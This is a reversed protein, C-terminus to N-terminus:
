KGAGLAAIVDRLLGGDFGRHVVIRATGVVVEVSSETPTAVPETRVVRALTVAPTRPSTVKLRSAWYRLTSARFDRGEAFTEASKGSARWEQVRAAWKAATATM